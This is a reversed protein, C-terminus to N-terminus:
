VVSSRGTVTNVQRCAYQVVFKMLNDTKTKFITTFVLAHLSLQTCLDLQL